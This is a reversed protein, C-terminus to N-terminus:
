IVNRISPIILKIWRLSIVDSCSHGIKEVNIKPNNKVATQSDYGRMALWKLDRLPYRSL